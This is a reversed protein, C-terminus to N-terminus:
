INEEDEREEKKALYMKWVKGIVVVSLNFNYSQMHTHLLATKGLTLRCYTSENQTSIEKITLVTEFSGSLDNM